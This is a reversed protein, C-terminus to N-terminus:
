AMAVDPMRTSFAVSPSKTAGTAAVSRNDSGTSTQRHRDLRRLERICQIPKRGVDDPACQDDRQEVPHLVDLQQPLLVRVGRTTAAV